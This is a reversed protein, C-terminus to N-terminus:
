SNRSSRTTEPVRRRMRRLQELVRGEAVPYLEVEKRGAGVVVARQGGVAEVLPPVAGPADPRSRSDGLWDAARGAIVRYDDESVRELCPAACSRVQAYLCAVGLPLTPDPEFAYDCPRLAFRRNVVDRAKEALRRSKFPGYSSAGAAERVTVRPFREGPDLHLFAPPKLDRREALPVLPAILREYLLRQGFASGTRAWGVATAIGALNTKPRRGPPPPDGLGLHSAAWKRLNSAPALVLNHGEPGLLQGVGAGTPVKAVVAALEGELALFELPPAPLPM